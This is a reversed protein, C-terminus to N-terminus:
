FKIGRAYKEWAELQFQTLWKAQIIAAKIDDVAFEAIEGVTLKPNNLKRRLIEEIFM